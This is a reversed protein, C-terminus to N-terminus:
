IFGQRDCELNGLREFRRVFVPDDMTIEFRRIDLQPGISDHLHQRSVL